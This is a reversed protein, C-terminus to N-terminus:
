LPQNLPNYKNEPSVNNKANILIVTQGRKDQDTTKRGMPKNKQIVPITAAMM